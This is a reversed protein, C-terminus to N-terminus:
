LGKDEAMWIPIVISSDDLRCLSKPFWYDEGEITVLWAKDTEKKIEDFDYSAEETDDDFIAM